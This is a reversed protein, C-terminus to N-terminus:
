KMGFIENEIMLCMAHYVPLHLEQVFATRKEPVNILVDCFEKMKGGTEGTMGITKLGKAKAVILADLVNRSNGSTSLGLLVDGPNGYGIVQQAFIYDGGIDNSVASTLATHASLSIAPLGQQLNNALLRGRDPSIDDLTKQFSPELSRKMEFGKMLEGVIHDADASSGGNGCALFKGGTRFSDVIMEVADKIPEKLYDIRSYRNLLQQLIINEM